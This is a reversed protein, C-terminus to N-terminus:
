GELLVELEEVGMVVVVVMALGVQLVAMDLVEMLLGLHVVMALAWAMDLEEMDEM